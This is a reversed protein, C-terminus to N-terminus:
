QSKPILIYNSLKNIKKKKIIWIEERTKLYASLKSMLTSLNTTGSIELLTTATTYINKQSNNYLLNYCNQINITKPPEQLTANTIKNITNINPEINAEIENGLILEVVELKTTTSM